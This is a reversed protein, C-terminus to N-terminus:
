TASLSILTFLLFLINGDLGNKVAWTQLYVYWATIIFSQLYVHSRIFFTTFLDSIQDLIFSFIYKTYSYSKSPTDSM